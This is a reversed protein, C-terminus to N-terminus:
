LAHARAELQHAAASSERADGLVFTDVMIRASRADHPRELVVLDGDPDAIVPQTGEFRDLDLVDAFRVWSQGDVIGLASMDAASPGILEVTVSGLTRYRAWTGIWVSSAIHRADMERLASRLRSRESSSLSQGDGGSLLDIAADLTKTSWRRGPSTTRIWALTALDDTTTQRGITRAMGLRGDSLARQATRPSVGATRAADAVTIEMCIVDCSRRM